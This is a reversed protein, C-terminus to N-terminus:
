PVKQFRDILLILGTPTLSVFRAKRSEVTSLQSDSNRVSIEFSFVFDISRLLDDEAEAEVYVVELIINYGLDIM